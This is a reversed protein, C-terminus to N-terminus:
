RSTTIVAAEQEEQSWLGKAPTSGSLPNQFLLNSLTIDM